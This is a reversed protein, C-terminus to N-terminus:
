RRSRRRLLERRRRAYRQFAKPRKVRLWDLLQQQSEFRVRHGPERMTVECEEFSYEECIQPREAYIECTGSPALHRCVTRFEIYWDGDHDIYVSVDRHALYWVINEYDRFSSPDDIETAVYRCCQACDHCPHASPLQVLPLELPAEAPALKESNV